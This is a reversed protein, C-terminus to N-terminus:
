RTTSADADTDGLSAVGSELHRATVRSDDEEIFEVGDSASVTAM